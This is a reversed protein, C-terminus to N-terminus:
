TPVVLVADAPTTDGAIVVRGDVLKAQGSAVRALAAPYIVHEQVLVRAALTEPTDGEVIPVAAQALVPGDDLEPTVFHVTCGHLRVNAALARAHTDLGRFAPLLSPHINILRGAWRNVFWPTLVRLFGALCVLEVAHEVLVADIAREFAERNGAFLKHDVVATAIGAESAYVLGAADARNSLVLAIDAPFGPTRAAEVLAVMNSGRGSIFIATKPRAPAKGAGTDSTSTM